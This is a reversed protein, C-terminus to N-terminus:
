LFHLGNNKNKIEWSSCFSASSVVVASDFSVEEADV